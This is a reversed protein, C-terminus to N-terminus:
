VVEERKAARATELVVRALELGKMGSRRMSAGDDGGSALRKAGTIATTHMKGEGNCLWDGIAPYSMGAHEHCVYSFVARALPLPECRLVQGNTHMDEITVGLRATVAAAVAEPTVRVPVLKTAKPEAPQPKKSPIITPM